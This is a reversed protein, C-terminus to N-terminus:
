ENWVEAVLEEWAQTEEVSKASQALRAAERSQRAAEQQLDSQDHRSLYEQLAKNIIRNKGENTRRAM